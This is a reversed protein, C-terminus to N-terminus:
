INPKKEAFLFAFDPSWDQHLWDEVFRRDKQAEYIITQSLRDYSTVQGTFMLAIKFSRNHLDDKSVQEVFAKFEASTLGHLNKARVFDLIDLCYAVSNFSVLHLTSSGENVSVEFKNQGGIKHPGHDWDEGGAKIKEIIETSM